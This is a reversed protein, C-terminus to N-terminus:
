NFTTSITKLKGACVSLTECFGSGRSLIKVSLFLFREARSSTYTQTLRFLYDVGVWVVTVEGGVPRCEGFTKHTKDIIGMLKGSGVGQFLYGNPIIPMLERPTFIVTDAAVNRGGGRMWRADRAGEM